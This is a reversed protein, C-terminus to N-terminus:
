FGLETRGIIDDQLEKSLEVFYDFDYDGSCIVKSVANNVASNVIDVADSVAVQTTLSRFFVVAVILLALAFSLAICMIGVKSHSRRRHYYM